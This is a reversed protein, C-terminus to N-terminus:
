VRVRQARALAGLSRQMELVSLTAMVQAATMGTRAILEDVAPRSTTSAAWSRDSRTPSPWSPPIASPRNARSRHPGRPGPPRARRPHRRRDRGAPCRRPDPSPLGPQCATPRGPSPSSRATRSWPTSRPRSRAAARPPRSSSWAWALAGLHDPQAAPLPRGAAGPADADRQGPCRGRRGVRALEEHEPPYVSALGNALVALTRGGAKIAGRHAAADIGRALGSVVTFGTRALARLWGSPSGCATRRATGRASWRSRSSTARSSRGEVYLSVPRTPSTRSRRRSLGPDGRAIVSVGMRRCLALEAAADFDHRARSIKEALKPGVGARRSCRRGAVGGSGPGASGFRELLARCTQPGVGPVMALHILDLLRQDDDSEAM